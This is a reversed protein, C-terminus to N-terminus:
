KDESRHKEALFALTFIGIITILVGISGFNIILIQSGALGALVSLGIMLAKM